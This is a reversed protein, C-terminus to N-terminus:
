NAIGLATLRRRFEAARTAEKYPPAPIECISIQQGLTWPEQAKITDLAARLRPNTSPIPLAQGALTTATTVAFLATTLLRMYNPAIAASLIRHISPHCPNKPSRTPRCKDRIVRIVARIAGHASMAGRE